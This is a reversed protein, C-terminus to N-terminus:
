IRFITDFIAALFKWLWRGHTATNTRQSFQSKESFEVIRKLSRREFLFLLLLQHYHRQRQRHRHRHRHLWTSWTSPNRIGSPTHRITSPSHHITFPRSHVTYLPYFFTSSHSHSPPLHLLRLFRLLPFTSSLSSSSLLSSSSSSCSFSSSTYVSLLFPLLPPKQIPKLPLFSFFSCTM